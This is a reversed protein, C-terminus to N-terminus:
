FLSIKDAPRTLAHYEGREKNGYLDFRVADETFKRQTETTEGLCFHMPVFHAVEFEKVFINAGEWYDRGIRSDVPFMAIDIRDTIAHIPEIKKRFDSLAVEIEKATSEDKWVWANLDGAHFIFKGGIDLLYSNGTDTSGFAHIKLINDCYSEGPKLVTVSETDVKYEGNYTGNPKLIYNVTRATDKSIIYRIESSLGGAICERFRLSFIERNFHDKHHHSVLIYVPKNMETPISLQNEPDQWYDFVVICDDTELKFCDHWIYKLTIM